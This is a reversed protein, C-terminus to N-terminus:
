IHHDPIDEECFIGLEDGGHKHLWGSRLMDAIPHCPTSCVALLHWPKENGLNRYGETTHHVELQGGRQGCLQCTYKCREKHERSKQQWEPSNDLVYAVYEESLHGTGMRQRNREFDRLLRQARRVFDLPSKVKPVVKDKRLRILINKLLMLDFMQWEPGLQRRVECMDDNTWDDESHDLNERGWLLAKVLEDRPPEKIKGTEFLQSM